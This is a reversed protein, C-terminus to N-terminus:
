VSSERAQAPQLLHRRINVMLYGGVVISLFGIAAVSMWVLGVRLREQYEDEPYGLADFDTEWSMMMNHDAATVMSPEMYSVLMGAVGFTSLLMIMVVLAGMAFKAEWATLEVEGDRVAIIGWFSGFLIGLVILFFIWAGANSFILVCLYVFAVPPFAIWLARGSASGLGSPGYQRKWSVDFIITAAVSIALNAVMALTIPLATGTIAPISYFGFIDMGTIIAQLNPANLLFFVSVFFLEGVQDSKRWRPIGQALVLGSGAAAFLLLIRTGDLGLVNLAYGVLGIFAGPIVAKKFSDRASRLPDISDGQRVVSGAMDRVQQQLTEMKSDLSRVAELETDQGTQDDPSEHGALELLGQKEAESLGLTDGLDILFQRPALREGREWHSISTRGYGASKRGHRAMRKLLDDQSLRGDGHQDDERYSRILKGVLASRGKDADKDAM